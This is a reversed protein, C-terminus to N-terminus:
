GFFPTIFLDTPFRGPSGRPSRVQGAAASALFFFFFLFVYDVIQM